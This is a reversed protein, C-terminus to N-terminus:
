VSERQLYRVNASTTLIQQSHSQLEGEFKGITKSGDKKRPLAGLIKLGFYGQASGCESYIYICGSVAEGPGIM